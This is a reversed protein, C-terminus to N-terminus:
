IKEEMVYTKFAKSPKILPDNTYSSITKKLSLYQKLFFLINDYFLLHQNSIQKQEEMNHYLLDILYKNNDCILSLFYAIKECKSISSSNSLIDEVDTNVKCFIQETEINASLTVTVDTPEIDSSLKTDSDIIKPKIFISILKKILAYM